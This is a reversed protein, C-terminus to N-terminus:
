TSRGRRAFALWRDPRVHHSRATERAGCPQVGAKTPLRGCDAHATAKLSGERVMALRAWRAANQWRPMDPASALPELDVPRLIGKMRRGVGELIRDIPASGGLEVLTQLIPTYYVGEPTRLGRRLRGLDRRHIPAEATADDERVQLTMAAWERRLADAKDRFATLHAARELAERAREYDRAEFARAGIRNVFEIETEIEELLIEFAAVVNTPDNEIM